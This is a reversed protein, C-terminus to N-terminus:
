ETKTSCFFRQEDFYIKRGEGMRSKPLREAKICSKSLKQQVFFDKSM